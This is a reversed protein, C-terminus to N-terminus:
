CNVGSAAAERLEALGELTREPSPAGEPPTWGLPSGAAILRRAVEVHGEGSDKAHSRGEVAWVLPTGSFMGDTAAVDAGFRLLVRVAEAHGGMAARHLPTVGDKDRAGPEFGCALMTELVAM